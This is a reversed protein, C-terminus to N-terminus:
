GQAPRQNEDQPVGTGPMWAESTELVKVVGRLLSVASNPLLGRKQLATGRGRRSTAAAASTAGSGSGSGSSTGSSASTPDATDPSSHTGPRGHIRDRPRTGRITSKRRVGGSARTGNYRTRSTQGKKSRSSSSLLGDDGDDDDDDDDDEPAVGFDETSPSGEGEEDEDDDDEEEDEEEVDELSGDSSSARDGETKESAGEGEPAKMANDIALPINITVRALQITLKLRGTINFYSLQRLSQQIEHLRMLEFKIISLYRKGASANCSFLLIILCMAKAKPHTLLM